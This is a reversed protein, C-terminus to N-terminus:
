DKLVEIETVKAGFDKALSYKPMWIDVHYNGMESNMRDEVVFIKGGYLAPIRVRTGFPLKNNAIIGDAVHKGSATIFPTDDTEEPVSTYATVVMKITRSIKYSSKDLGCFEKANHTTIRGAESDANITRPGAVGYLSLVTVLSVILVRTYLSKNMSNSNAMLVM